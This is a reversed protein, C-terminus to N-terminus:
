ARIAPSDQQWPQHFNYDQRTVNVRILSQVLSAQTTNNPKSIPAAACGELLFLPLWLYLLVTRRKLM